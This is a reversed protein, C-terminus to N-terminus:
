PPDGHGSAIRPAADGTPCRALIADFQRRAAAPALHKPDFWAAPDRAWPADMLDVVPAGIDTVARKLRDIGARDYGGLVTPSHPHWVLCLTAGAVDAIEALRRLARLQDPDVAVAGPTAASRAAPRPAPAGLMAFAGGGAYDARVANRGAAARLAADALASLSPAFLRDMTWGPWGRGSVAPHALHGPAGGGPALGFLDLGLVLTDTLKGRLALAAAFDAIESPAAGLLGLNYWRGATEPRWNPDLLGTRSSGLLLAEYRPAQLLHEIKAVRDNGYPSHSVAPPRFTELPDFGLNLIPAAALGLVAAAILARARRM